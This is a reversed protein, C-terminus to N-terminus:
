ALDFNSRRLNGFCRVVWWIKLAKFRMGLAVQWDKYDWVDCEASFKNHYIEFNSIEGGMGIKMERKDKVYLLASTMGCMM